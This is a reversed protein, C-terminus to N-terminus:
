AMKSQRVQTVLAIMERRVEESTLVPTDFTFMAEAARAGYGTRVRFGNSDIVVMRAGYIPTSIGASALLDMLVDQHDENMHSLIRSSAYAIPDPVAAAFAAGDFRHIEGFGKIWRVGICRGIMFTFGHAEEYLKTQPFRALYSDRLAQDRTETFTLLLTIRSFPQPDNTVTEESVLLSARPDAALNKYHESIRAVLIVISGEETIDYPAVSGFPFGEWYKSHTSLTGWTRATVFNRADTISSSM